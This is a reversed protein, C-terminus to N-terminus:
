HLVWARVAAPGSVLTLEGPRAALLDILDPVLNKPEVVALRAAAAHWGPPPRGHFVLSGTEGVAADCGTVLATGPGVTTVVELGLEALSEALRVKRLVPHGSLVLRGVGAQRLGEALETALAEVHVLRATMGGREAAHAFLEPLGLDTYVLRATPEYVLPPPPLPTAAPRNLSQRVRELVMTKVPPTAAVDTPIVAAAAMAM